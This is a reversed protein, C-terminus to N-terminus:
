ALAGLLFSVVIGTGFFAATALLSGPQFRSVGCLGHGSTCGGAMRTGFGVLAGGLLLPVFALPGTGFLAAFGSSRITVVPTIGGALMASVFAGVVLSLFFLVHTTSTQTAAAAPGADPKAIPEGVADAGFTERTAEALAAIMEEETMEPEKPAGLRVRDVLATFRGSVAMVRHVLFWHAVAVMALALGSAWFPWYAM